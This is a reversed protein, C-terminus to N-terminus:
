KKSSYTCREAFIRIETWGWMGLVDENEVGWSYIWSLPKTIFFRIKYFFIMFRAPPDAPNWLVKKKEEVFLFVSFGCFRYRAPPDTNIFKNRWLIHKEKLHHSGKTKIPSCNPLSHWVTHTFLAFTDCHWGLKLWDLFHIPTTLFFLHGQQKDRSAQTVSPHCLAPWPWVCWGDVMLRREEMKKQFM